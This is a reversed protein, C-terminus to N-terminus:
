ARKSDAGLNDVMAGSGNEFRYRIRQSVLGVPQGLGLTLKLSATHKGGVATGSQLWNCCPRIGIALTEACFAAYLLPEGGRQVAM